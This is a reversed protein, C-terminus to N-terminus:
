PRSGVALIQDVWTKIRAASNLGRTRMIRAIDIGSIIVIPHGDSRIEKYAQPSIYSTTVIVGFQRHRLRSILRSTEKVGVGNTEGYAKAELAFDAFIGDSDQQEGGIRLRGIADRGGDASKRTIELDFVRPEIMKFIEAAVFEFDHPTASFLEQLTSLIKRGVLDGSAPLQSERNRHTVTKPAKLSKVIGRNIWDRWPGPAHKRATELDGDSLADIWPRPVERCDLLDFKARYNQFRMGDTQRWIAVLGEDESLSPVALGRFMVSRGDGTKTFVLIPPIQARKPLVSSAAFMDRLLQNGRRPTDHLDHGPRKNDGYYTYVGSEADLRDPWDPDTGSSSLILLSCTGLSQGSIARFGGQNGCAKILRHIPDDGLNGSTGGEYIADVILPSKRLEAFPFRQISVADNSISLESAYVRRRVAPSLSAKAHEGPTRDAAQAM